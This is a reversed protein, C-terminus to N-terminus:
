SAIRGPWDDRCILLMDEHRRLCITLRYLLLNRLHYSARAMYRPRPKGSESTPDPPGRRAKTAFSQPSPSVRRRQRRMTARVVRGGASARQHGFRTTTAKQHLLAPMTIGRTLIGYTDATPSPIRKTPLVKVISDSFTQNVSHRARQHFTALRPSQLVKHPTPSFVPKGNAPLIRLQRHRLRNFRRIHLLQFM